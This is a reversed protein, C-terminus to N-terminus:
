APARGGTETVLWVLLERMGGREHAARQRTAGGGQELIREVGELPAESGLERAYPLVRAVTARAAERLPALRGDAGILSADLGDRAARFQSWALAETPLAPPEEEAAARALAHVLAALAAADDLSAQADMERVEITGLRPHLRVDWWLWTYDDLGGAAVAAAVVEAYEDLDRLPRPVGRGPYARVLAWRASAFGSDRAFWWPSNAALGALLPLEARLANFARIAAEPDPMGVHVHLACEPTRRILGRMAAEARRYRDAEVLRADFLEGAPHLGVGLLTAGAARAAARRTALVDAAEAASACPPSRLEIEAAYAEHAAGEAPADLDRLIREAVPALALSEPDVLLLEEEIGVSFPAGSGFSHELEADRWCPPPPSGGSCSPPRWAARTGAPRSGAPM